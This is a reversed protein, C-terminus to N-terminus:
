RTLRHTVADALLRGRLTLVLRPASTDDVEALGEAVLDAVASRAAPALGALPLGSALRIGLLVEELAAAAEDLRERGAAPFRGAAVLAAYEAPWTVNWWRVGAVHSHAGPGIGLWDRGQWYGLNHRCPQGWNSIEYWPLGAATLTADAVEYRDALEDPDPARLAGTAVRRALRTGEEVGLAYASVHSPSAALAAQLSERWEADTEGPTGYILDLSVQAFGAARAATAAAIAGGPTHRRELVQLVHPTVSQMGLSIRNVGAALLSDLLEPTVTEPNAEVTVEADAALGVSDRVAKILETLLQGGLVTPTGGGVFLTSAAALGPLRAAWAALEGAAAATYGTVLEGLAPEAAGLERPTYTTFDCYGCRHACFPVHLYVGWPARPARGAPLPGEDPVVEGEPLRSM